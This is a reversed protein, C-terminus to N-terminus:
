KSYRRKRLINNEGDNEICGKEEYKIKKNEGDNEIGGKLFFNREM